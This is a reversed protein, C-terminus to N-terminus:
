VLIWFGFNVVTNTFSCKFLLVNKDNDFLFLKALRDRKILLSEEIEFIYRHHGCILITFKGFFAIKNCILLHDFIASEWSPKVNRFRLPSIGVHEGSKVKLHRDIEGYYSSNCKGCM